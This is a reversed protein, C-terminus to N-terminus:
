SAVVTMVATPSSVKRVRPLVTMSSPQRATGGVSFGTFVCRFFCASSSSSTVSGTRFSPSLRVTFLVATRSSVVRGGAWIVSAESSAAM